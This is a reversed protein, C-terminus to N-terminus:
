RMGRCGVDDRVEFGLTARYFALAAEPGDNPLFTAHANIDM